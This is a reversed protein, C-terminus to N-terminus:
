RLEDDDCIGLRVMECGHIPCIASKAFREWRAKLEWYNVGVFSLYYTKVGNALFGFWRVRKVKLNLLSWLFKSQEETLKSFDVAKFDQILQRFAYRLRHKIKAENEDCFKVYNVHVDPLGDWDYGFVKRISAKYREKLKRHDFFPRKRVFYVKGDEKREAVVNLMLVHAHPYYGCVPCDTHWFHISLIGGPMGGYMGLTEYVAKVLLRPEVIARGWLAEPMTFVVHLLYVSGIGLKEVFEKLFEYAREVMVSTYAQADNPCFKRNRCLKRKLLLHSSGLGDGECYYKIWSKGCGEIADALM